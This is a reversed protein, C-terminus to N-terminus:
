WDLCNEWHSIVFEGKFISVTLLDLRWGEAPHQHADLYHYITNILRELKVRTLGAAAAESSSSRRTKVEVFVLQEQETMILDIEGYACRWNRGVCRYGKQELYRLAADEGAKGVSQMLLPEAEKFSM